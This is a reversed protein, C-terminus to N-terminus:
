PVARYVHEGVSFFLSFSMRCNWGPVWNERSDGLSGLPRFLLVSMTPDPRSQGHDWHSSDVVSVQVISCLFIAPAVREKPDQRTM